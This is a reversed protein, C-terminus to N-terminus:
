EVVRRARGRKGELLLLLMQRQKHMRDRGEPKARSSAVGTRRQLALYFSLFKVAFHFPAGEGGLALMLSYHVQAADDCLRVIPRLRYYM